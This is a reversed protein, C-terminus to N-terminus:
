EVFRAEYSAVLDDIFEDYRLHAGLPPVSPDITLTDPDYLLVWIGEMLHPADSEKLRGGARQLRRVARDVLDTTPKKRIGARSRAWEWTPLTLVGGVVAFPFKLHVNIAFSRIDGFRNWIARGVAANVPKIEIALRLGDLRHLESVDANAPRLAGAVTREGAVGDFLPLRSSLEACITRALANSLRIQAAKHADSGVGARNRVYDSVASVYDHLTPITLSNVRDVETLGTPDTPKLAM